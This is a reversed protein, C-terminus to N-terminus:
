TWYVDASGTDTRPWKKIPQTTIARNLIKMITMNITWIVMYISQDRSCTFYYYYYYYNVRNALATKIKSNSNSDSEHCYIM